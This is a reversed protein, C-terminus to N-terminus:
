SKKTPVIGVSCGQHGGVNAPPSWFLPSPDGPKAGRLRKHVYESARRFLDSIDPGYSM